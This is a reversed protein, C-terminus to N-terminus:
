HFKRTVSQNIGESLRLEIVALALPKIKESNLMTEARSTGKSMGCYICHMRCPSVLTRWQTGNMKASLLLHRNPLACSPKGKFRFDDTNEYHSNHNYLHRVATYCTSCLQCRLMISIESKLHYNIYNPHATSNREKPIRPNCLHKEFLEQNSISYTYCTSCLQCHLTIFIESKLSYNICSPHM